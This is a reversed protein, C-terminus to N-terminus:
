LEVEVRVRTGQGPTTDVMLRGGVQAAREAMGGLGLGGRGQVAAPNFGTGDDAIELRVVQGEQWLTLTVTHAQAHKFVNNLTEQAIGYLAEELPAPLHLDGQVDFTATLGAIRGEVAALRAQLAAVLGEQALIPPRLEFILLRMEQLAEQATNRVERLYATATQQDGGALLTAAAEAYMTVGYLAQTVSDHLERALRQREELAAVEQARAYLRANEIAVAAQNAIAHALGAHRETYAHPERHDLRVVGIIQDKLILPVILLSRADALTARLHAPLVQFAQALADTGQLDDVIVPGGQQLVAQYGPAHAAPLQLGRLRERPLPGRYDLVRLYEEEVMLVAVATYDVLTKLQDLILGLLPELELTSAVNHSVELLTSLERTREEVRQELLEYAQVRETVDRQVALMHSKGRYTFGTAHGEAHFTTGDKRVCVTRGQVPHGALVMAVGQAIADHQDPPVLVSYPLGILEDYSYGFM